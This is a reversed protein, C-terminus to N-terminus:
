HGDPQQWWKIGGLVLAFLWAASGWVLKLAHNEALWELYSPRLSRMAGTSGIRLERASASFNIHMAAPELQLERIEGDILSLDVVERHRLASQRGGLSENFITGKLVSSSRSRIVGVSDAMPEDVLEHFSVETVPITRRVLLSNVDRPSVHIELDATKSNSAKLAVRTGRGFDITAPESGTTSVRVSRALTAAVTAAPNAIRLRWTGAEEVQEISVQTGPPITVSSLTLAGDDTPRFETPPMLVLTQLNRPEEIQTPAFAIAQLLKLSSLGTLQVVSRTRYTIASCAIDLEARVAPLPTIILFTIAVATSVLLVPILHRSKSPTQRFHERRLNSLSELTRTEEALTEDLPLGDQPLRASLAELRSTLFRNFREAASKTPPTETPMSFFSTSRKRSVVRSNSV